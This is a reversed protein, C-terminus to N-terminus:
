VIWAEFYTEHGSVNKFMKTTEAERRMTFTVTMEIGFFSIKEGHRIGSDVGEIVFSWKHQVPNLYGAQYCRYEIGEHTIYPREDKIM